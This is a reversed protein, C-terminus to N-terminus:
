RPSIFHFLISEYCDLPIDNKEGPENGAKKKEKTIHHPDKKKTVNKHKVKTNDNTKKDSSRKKTQEYRKTGDHHIHTTNESTLRINVSSHSFFFAVLQRLFAFPLHHYVMSICIFSTIEVLVVIISADFFLPM